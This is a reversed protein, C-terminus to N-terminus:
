LGCFPLITARLNHIGGTGEQWENSDTIRATHVTQPRTGGNVGHVLSLYTEQACEGWNFGYQAQGVQAHGPLNVVTSQPQACGEECCCHLTRPCVVGVLPFQASVGSACWWGTCTLAVGAECLCVYWRCLRAAVM